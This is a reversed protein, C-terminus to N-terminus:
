ARGILYLLPLLVVWVIDVLHWYLAVGEFAAGDVPISRRAAFVALTTVLGIGITLHIAHLGTLVWYFAWFIEAAPPQLAFRPGPLLGKAIDDRYEFGKVVLFALGFGATAILCWVTLRRLARESARVAIAITLSSTLLIATNLTGYFVDTERAAARFAEPYMHRYVAYGLLLAGFFLVESTLFV